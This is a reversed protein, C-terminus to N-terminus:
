ASTATIPRPRGCSPRKAGTKSAEPLLIVSSAALKAVSERLLEHDPNGAFDV